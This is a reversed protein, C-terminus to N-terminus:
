SRGRRQRPARISSSCRHPRGHRCGRCPLSFTRACGCGRRPRQSGPFYASRARVHDHPVLTICSRLGLKRFAARAAVKTAVTPMQATAMHAHSPGPKDFAGTEAGVVTPVRMGTTLPRVSRSLWAGGADCGGGVRVAVVVSRSACATGADCGGGTVLLLTSSSTGANGAGCEDGGPPVATSVRAWTNPRVVIGSMPVATTRPM